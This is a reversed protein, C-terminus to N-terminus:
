EPFEGKIGLEKREKRVTEFNKIANINAWRRAISAKDKETLQTKDKVSKKVIRTITVFLKSLQIKYDDYLGLVISSQTSLHANRGTKLHDDQYTM